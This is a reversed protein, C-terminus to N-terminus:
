GNQVEEYDELLEKLNRLTWRHWTGIHVRKLSVGTYQKKGLTLIINKDSKIYQKVYFHGCKTHNVEIYKHHNRKNRYTKMMTKKKM